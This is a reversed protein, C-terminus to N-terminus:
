ARIGLPIFRRRLVVEYFLSRFAVRTGLCRKRLTEEFTSVWQIGGPGWLRWVLGNPIGSTPILSAGEEM